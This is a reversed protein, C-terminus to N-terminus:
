FPVIGTATEVVKSLSTNGPLASIQKSSLVNVSLPQSAAQGRVTVHGLVREALALKVTASNGSLVTVVETASRGDQAAATMTYTDFPVRAFEFSGDVASTTTFSGSDESKLTVFVGAVPSGAQDVVTGRVTGYADALAISATSLCIALALAVASALSAFLRM